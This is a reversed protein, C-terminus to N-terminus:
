VGYNNIFAEVEPDKMTALHNKNYEVIEKVNHTLEVLKVETWKSIKEILEMIAMFRVEHDLIDDYSEDWFKDFTKFGLSRLYALTGPAAFVIFPQM